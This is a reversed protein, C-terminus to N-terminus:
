RLSEYAALTGAALKEVTFETARQRGLNRLQAARTENGLVEELATTISETSRPDCLQVAGGAVERTAGCDSTLVPAGCAM